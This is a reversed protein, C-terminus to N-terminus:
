RNNVVDDGIVSAPVPLEIVKEVNLINESSKWLKTIFLFHDSYYLAAIYEPKNILQRNVDFLNSFFKYNSIKEQFTRSIKIVSNFRKITVM